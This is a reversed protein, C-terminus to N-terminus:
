QKSPRKGSAPSLVPPFSTMTEPAPKLPALATINPALGARNVTSEAVLISATAGAPTPVTLTDTLVAEPTALGSRDLM